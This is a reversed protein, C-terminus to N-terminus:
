ALCNCLSVCDTGKKLDLSLLTVVRRKPEVHQDTICQAFRSLEKASWCPQYFAQTRRPQGYKHHVICIELRKNPKTQSCFALPFHHCLNGEINQGPSILTWKVRTKWWYFSDRTEREPIDGSLPFLGEKPQYVSRLPGILVLLLPLRGQWWRECRM